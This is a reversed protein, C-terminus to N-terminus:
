TLFLILAPQIISALRRIHVHDLIPAVHLDVLALKVRVYLNVLKKMLRLNAM